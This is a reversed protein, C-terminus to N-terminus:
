KPRVDKRLFSWSFDLDFILRGTPTRAILNLGDPGFDAAAKITVGGDGRYGREKLEQKVRDMCWAYAATGEREPCRMEIKM